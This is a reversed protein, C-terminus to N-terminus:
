EDFFDRVATVGRILTVEPQMSEYEQPMCAHHSLALVSRPIRNRLNLNSTGVFSHAHHMGAQTCTRICPFPNGATCMASVLNDITEKTSNRQKSHAVQLARAASINGWGDADTGGVLETTGLVLVIREELMMGGDVRM